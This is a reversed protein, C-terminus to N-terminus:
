YDYDDSSSSYKDYYEAERRDREWQAAVSRRRERREERLWERAESRDVDAAASVAAVAAEESTGRFAVMALSSVIGLTMVLGIAGLYLCGIGRFVTKGFDFLTSWLWM